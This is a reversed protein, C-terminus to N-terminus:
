WSRSKHPQVSFTIVRNSAVASTGFVARTQNLMEILEPQFFLYQTDFPRYLCEIPRWDGAKLAVNNALLRKISRTWKIEAKIPKKPTSRNAEYDDVLHNIKQQLCGCERGYVWEHRNTVLGFSFLKFIAKDKTTSKASKTSKEGVPLFADWDSDTRAFWNGKNDPEIRTFDLSELRNSPLFALKQGATEFEPRRAYSIRCEGQRRSKVMFSIAVGTQIGFVNHKTGSLKPNARVDGGLDVVYIYAFEKAVVKRFGDFTRSDIFSRNTVFALTGDDHLRDSAWRFFRAYM